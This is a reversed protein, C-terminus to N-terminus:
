PVAGPPPTLGREKLVYDPISQVIQRGIQFMRRIGDPGRPSDHMVLLPGRMEMAPAQGCKLLYEILRAHFIDYAFKPTECKVYYKRSFEASEFNIDDHGVWAAMKDLFTEDRLSLHPALVPLGLILAQYSYTSEDKGSGTKYTYDFAMMSRGDADGALVNTAHKSHGSSFLDFQGYREPLDWPDEAYFRVGLEAALAAMAERERRSRIIGWIVLAVILAGFGGFLLCPLAGAAGAFLLDV